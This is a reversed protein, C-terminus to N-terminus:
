FMAFSYRIRRESTRFITQKDRFLEITRNPTIKECNLTVFVFTESVNCKYLFILSGALFFCNDNEEINLFTCFVFSAEDLLEVGNNFLLEPVLLTYFRVSGYTLQIKSIFTTICCASFGLMNHNGSKDLCRFKRTTIFLTIIKKSLSHGM